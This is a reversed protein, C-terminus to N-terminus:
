RNYGRVRTSQVQVSNQPENSNISSYTNSMRLDQSAHDQEQNNMGHSLSTNLLLKKDGEQEISLMSETFTDIDGTSRGSNSPGARTTEQHRGRADATNRGSNSPGAHSNLQYRGGANMGGRIGGRMTANSRTRGSSPREDERPILSLASNRFSNNSNVGTRSRGHSAGATRETETLGGNSRTNRQGNIPGDLNPGGGSQRDTSRGGGSFAGSRSSEGNCRGRHQVQSSRNPPMSSLNLATASGSSQAQSIADANRSPEALTRKPIFSPSPQQHGIHIFWNTESRSGSHTGRTWSEPTGSPCDNNLMARPARPADPPPQSRRAMGTANTGTPYRNAMQARPGTPPNSLPQPGRGTNTDSGTPYGNTREARPRGPTTPPSQPGRAINPDNTVM